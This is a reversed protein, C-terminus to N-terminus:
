RGRTAAPPPPSLRLAGAPAHRRRLLLLAHLSREKVFWVCVCLRHKQVLGAGRRTARACARVHAGFGDRVCVLVCWVEGCQVVCVRCLAVCVVVCACVCLHSGAGHWEVQAVGPSENRRVQLQRASIPVALTRAALSRRQAWRRPRGICRRRTRRSRRRSSRAFRRCSRSRGRSSRCPCATTDWHAARKVEPYRAACVLPRGVTCRGFVCCVSLCVFLRMGPFGRPGTHACVAKWGSGAWRIVNRRGAWAPRPRTSRDYWQPRDTRRDAASPGVLRLALVVLAVNPEVRRAACSWAAISACGHSPARRASM